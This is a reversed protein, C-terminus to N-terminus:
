KEEAKSGFIALMRTDFILPRRSAKNTYKMVQEYMLVYLRYENERGKPLAPHPGTLGEKSQRLARVAICRPRRQLAVLSGGCGRSARIAPFRYSKLVFVAPLFGGSDENLFLRLARGPASHPLFANTKAHRVTVSCDRLPRGPTPFASFRFNQHLDNQLYTHHWERKHMCAILATRFIIARRSQLDAVM